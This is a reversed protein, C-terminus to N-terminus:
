FSYMIMINYIHDSLATLNEFLQNTGCAVFVCCVKLISSFFTINRDYKGGITISLHKRM